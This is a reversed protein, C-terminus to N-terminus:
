KKQESIKQKIFQPFALSYETKNPNILLIDIEQQMSKLDLTTLYNDIILLMEILSKGSIVKLYNENPKTMGWLWIIDYLDRGKTRNREIFTLLKQSLIIEPATVSINRFVGYNNLLFNNATFNDTESVDVKVLLKEGKHRSLGLDYLLEPFKIYCHYVNKYVFRFETVFGKSEMDKIVNTLLKDFHDVEKTDFDLDESFRNANRLLRLATGGVFSLKNSGMLGYLLSLFKSQLYERLIGRKKEPPVGQNQAFELIKDFNSIINNV